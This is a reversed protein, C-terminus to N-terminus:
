QVEKLKSNEGFLGLICKEFCAEREARCESLVEVPSPIQDDREQARKAARELIAQRKTMIGLDVVQETKDTVFENM